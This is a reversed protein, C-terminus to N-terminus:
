FAMQLLFYFTIVMWVLLFVVFSARDIYQGILRYYNVVTWAEKVGIDGLGDKLDVSSHSRPRSFDTVSKVKDQNSSPLEMNSVKNSIMSSITRTINRTKSYGSLFNTRARQHAVKKQDKHALYVIIISDIVTLLSIILLLFLYITLKPTSTGSKPLMSSVISLFVSLALLVTIGYSIKEGSHAPIVFVMLNLFSLFVVPMVINILLFTPRRRLQFNLQITSGETNGATIQITHLTANTLEWEGHQTFFDLKVQLSAPSFVLEDANYTMSLFTIICKQQDFPYDSMHLECSAPILGGPAWYVYGAYDVAVPAIDDKFLDRDGLTNLLVVRPRWIQEPKPHIITQNGYRYPDWTLMEDQWTFLLFGNVNFSQAVDDINVISVLEFDVDVDIVQLQDKLPRVETHYDKNEVIDVMINVTDSYSQGLTNRGALRRKVEFRSAM